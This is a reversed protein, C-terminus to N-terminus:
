RPIHRWSYCINSLQLISISKYEKMMALVAIALIIVLQGESRCFPLFSVLIAFSVFRKKILTFFSATLILNFLPETLGSLTTEYIDPISFLLVPFILSLSKNVQFHDLIKWRYFSIGSFVLCNFFVIGGYGFQAFSSSLLTFFPKDWHHFFLIPNSWSAESIYFHILGDGTNPPQESGLFSYGYVSCIIVDLVTRIWFFVNLNM